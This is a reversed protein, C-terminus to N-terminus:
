ESGGAGANGSGADSESSVGVDISGSSGAEEAASGASGSAGSTEEGNSPTEASNGGEGGAGRRRDRNRNRHEEGGGARPTLDPSGSMGGEGASAVGGSGGSEAAPEGSAGTGAEHQEQATVQGASGSTGGQVEAGAGAHGSAGGSGTSQGMRGAQAGAWRGANGNARTTSQSVPNASGAVGAQGAIASGASGSAGAAGVVGAAGRGAPLPAGRGAAGSSDGMTECSNAALCAADTCVVSVSQSSDACASDGDGLALTVRAVGPRTCTFSTETNTGSLTGGATSWAYNLPSPGDMADKIDAKLMVKMGVPAAAPVAHLALVLPCENVKEGDPSQVRSGTTPVGDCQIRLSVATSKGADINFLTGGVCHTLADASLLKADANVALAYDTAPPLAEVKFAFTNHANAQAVAVPGKREFGGTRKVAYDLMELQIAAAPQLQIALMGPPYADPDAVTGSCSGASLLTGAGALALVTPSISRQM